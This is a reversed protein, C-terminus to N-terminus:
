MTHKWTWIAFLMFCDQSLHRLQFRFLKCHIRAQTVNNGNIGKNLQWFGYNKLCFLKWKICHCSSNTNDVVLNGFVQSSKQGCNTQHGNHYNNSDYVKLMKLEASLELSSKQDGDDTWRDTVKGHKWRRWFLQAFKLWVQCLADKPSPFELNNLHLAVGKELPLYNCFLLFYVLSIKFEEEGYGSPWNWGFKACIM